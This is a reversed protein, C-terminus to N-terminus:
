GKKRLDKYYEDRYAKVENHDDAYRILFNSNALKISYVAKATQKSERKQFVWRCHVDEELQDCEQYTIPTCEGENKMEIIKGKNPTFISFDDDEELKKIYWM